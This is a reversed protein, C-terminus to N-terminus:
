GAPSAPPQPAQMPAPGTGAAGGGQERGLRRLAFAAAIDLSGRLLLWIWLLTALVLLSIDPWIVAILGAAVDIVGRFISWGRDVPTTAAQAFAILGSAILYIGFALAVALLGSGPRALILGGAIGTILALLVRLLRDATPGPAMVAAVLLMAAWFILWFGAVITLLLLTRGPWVLVVIAAIIALIGSLLLVWWWRAPFGSLDPGFGFRSGGTRGTAPASM